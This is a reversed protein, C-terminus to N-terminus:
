GWASPSRPVTLCFLKWINASFFVGAPFAPLISTLFQRAAQLGPLPPRYLPGRTFHEVQIARTFCLVAFISLHFCRRTYSHSVAADQVPFRLRETSGHCAEERSGVRKVGVPLQPVSLRFRPSADRAPSPTVDGPSRRPAGVSFLTSRFSSPAYPNAILVAATRQTGASQM